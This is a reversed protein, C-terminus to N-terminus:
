NVSYEFSDLMNKGPQQKLKGVQAKYIIKKVKHKHKSLIDDVGRRTEETM